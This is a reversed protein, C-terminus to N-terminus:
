LSDYCTELFVIAYKAPSCLTNAHQMSQLARQTVISICINQQKTSSSPLVYAPPPPVIIKHQNGIYVYVYTCIYAYLLCTHTRAYAAAAEAVKWDVWALRCACTHTHAHTSPLPSPVVEYLPLNCAQQQRWLNYNTAVFSM